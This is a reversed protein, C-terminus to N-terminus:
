DVNLWILQVSFVTGEKQQLGNTGVKRGAVDLLFVRQIDELLFVM